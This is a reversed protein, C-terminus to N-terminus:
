HLCSFSTSGTSFGPFCWSCSTEMVVNKRKLYCNTIQKFSESFGIFSEESVQLDSNIFCSKRGCKTLYKQYIQFSQDLRLFHIVLLCNLYKTNLQLFNIICSNSPCFGSQNPNLLKEQLLIGNFTKGFSKGFIPLLSM